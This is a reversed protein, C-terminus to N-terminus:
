LLCTDKNPATTSWKWGDNAPISAVGRIGVQSCDSSPVGLYTSYSKNRLLVKGNSKTSTIWLQKIMLLPDTEKKKVSVQFEGGDGYATFYLDEALAANTDPDIWTPRDTIKIFVTNKSSTPYPVLTVSGMPTYTCMERGGYKGEFNWGLFRATLKTCKPSEYRFWLPVNRPISTTKTTVGPPPATTACPPLLGGLCPDKMYWAGLSGVCAVSACCAMGGVLVVIMMSSDGM